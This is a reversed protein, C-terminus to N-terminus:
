TALGDCAMRGPLKIPRRRSTSRADRHPSDSKRRTVGAVLRDETEGPATSQAYAKGGARIRALTALDVTAVEAAVGSRHCLPCRVSASGLVYIEPPAPSPSAASSAAAARYAAEAPALM